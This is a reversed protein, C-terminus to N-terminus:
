QLPKRSARYEKIASIFFWGVVGAIVVWILSGALYGALAAGTLPIGFVNGQTIAVLADVIGYFAMILLFVFAVGLGIVKGLGM